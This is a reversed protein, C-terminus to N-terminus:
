PLDIVVGLMASTSGDPAVTVTAPLSLSDGSGPFFGAALNRDRDVVAQVSYRGPHIQELRLNGQTDGPGATVKIARSLNCRSPDVCVETFLLVWVDALDALPRAWRVELDLVPMPPFAADGPGQSELDIPFPEPTQRPERRDARWVLHPRERVEVELVLQDDSPFSFVADIYACGQDVHCFRYRDPEVEVLKTRSDRSLGRFLGGNRFVLVDEGGHTEISFAFRLANDADIDMRSFLVHGGAPRLDMPMLPFDGLPTNSGPGIWLGALRGLLEVGRVLVTGADVAAAADV